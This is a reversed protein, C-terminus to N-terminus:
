NFSLYDGKKFSEILEELEPINWKHVENKRAWLGDVAERGYTDIMRITYEALNGSLFLNCRVCQAHINLPVFDLADKHIFHGAHTAYGGCTFCVNKDRKRVYESFLRWAKKRLTPIRNKSKRRM